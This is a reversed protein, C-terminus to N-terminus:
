MDLIFGVGDLHTIRKIYQQIQIALIKNLIKCKHEDTISAHLERKQSRTKQNQYWPSVPKMSYTLFHDKM